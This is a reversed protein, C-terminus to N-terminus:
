TDKLTTSAINRPSVSDFHLAAQIYLCVTGNGPIISYGCPKANRYTVSAEVRCQGMLLSDFRCLM